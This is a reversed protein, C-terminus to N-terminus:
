GHPPATPVALSALLGGIEMVLLGPDYNYTPVQGALRNLDRHAQALAPIGDRTTTHMRGAVVARALEVAALQRKRDPRSGMADLLKSRLGLDRDGRAALSQM